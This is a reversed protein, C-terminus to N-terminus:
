GVVELQVHQLQRLKLAGKDFHVLGREGGPTSKQRSFGVFLELCQRHLVWDELVRRLSAFSASSFSLVSGSARSCRRKAM